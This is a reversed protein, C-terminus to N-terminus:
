LIKIDKFIRTKKYNKIKKDRKTGYMFYNAMM